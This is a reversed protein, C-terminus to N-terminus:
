TICAHLAGRRYLVANHRSAHICTTKAMKWGVTQALACVRARSQAAAILLRTGTNSCLMDLRSVCALM